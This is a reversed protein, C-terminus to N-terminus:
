LGLSNLLIEYILQLKFNSKKGVKTRHGKRM